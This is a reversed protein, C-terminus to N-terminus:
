PQLGLLRDRLQRAGERPIAPISHPTLPGGGAVGFQLSATGFWRSIVSERLDVSQIKSLPLITTRRRWWGTRILLRDSDLAYGIRRWELQRAFWLAFPVVLWALGLLPLFMAQAFGAAILFPAVGLLFSWVFTRSVRKWEVPSPMERWGLATLIRNAEGCTALPALVHNGGRDEDRALTQLKLEGYGM